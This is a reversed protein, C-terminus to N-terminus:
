SVIPLVFTSVDPSDAFSEMNTPTAPGSSIGDLFFFDLNMTAVSARLRARRPM